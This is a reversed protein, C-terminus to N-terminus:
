VILRMSRPNHPPTTPYPFMSCFFFAKLLIKVVSVFDKMYTVHITAICIMKVRISQVKNVHSMYIHRRLRIFSETSEDNFICPIHKSEKWDRLKKYQKFICVKLTFILFWIYM